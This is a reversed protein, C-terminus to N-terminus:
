TAERQHQHEAIEDKAKRVLDRMMKYFEGEDESSAASM